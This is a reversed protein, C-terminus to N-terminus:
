REAALTIRDMGFAMEFVKLKKSKQVEKHVYKYEVPFDTRMSISAVEMWRDEYFIEIDLTKTSYHPLRDSDVIRAEKGTIHSIERCIAPLLNDDDHYDAMSDEAMICQFELQYFEKLRVFKTPQDIENRFSKGYQWICFPPAKKHIQIQDAAYAYSSPTTEPRMASLEGGVEAQLEFIDDETYQDSLLLRPTILPADVRHFKWQLNIAVMHTQITQSLRAVAQERILIQREDWFLLGNIDFTSM